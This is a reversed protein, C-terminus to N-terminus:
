IQYGDCLASESLVALPVARNDGRDPDPTIDSSMTFHAFENKVSQAAEVILQGLQTQDLGTGRPFCRRAWEVIDDTM